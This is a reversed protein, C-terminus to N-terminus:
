QNTRAFQGHMEVAARDYAARADELTAFQGLYKQRGHIKITARWRKRRKEWTVGKVGGASNAQPGRNRVNESTTAERLNVRRNSGRLGNVHDIQQEPWGGTEIAWIVRHALFVHGLIKGCRYGDAGITTFAEVRSYRANWNACAHHRTRNSTDEFWEPGREKWYLRGTEPEYRLLQRLIEPSIMDKM